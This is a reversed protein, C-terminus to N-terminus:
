NEASEEDREKRNLRAVAEENKVADRDHYGQPWKYAAYRLIATAIASALISLIAALSADM